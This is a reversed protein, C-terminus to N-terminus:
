VSIVRDPSKFSSKRMITKLVVEFGNQPSYNIVVPLNLRTQLDKIIAEANKVKKIKEGEDKDIKKFITKLEDISICPSNRSDGMREGFHKTFRIDIDHKQLLMDAFREIQKLTSDPIVDCVEEFVSENKQFILAIAQKVKRPDKIQQQIFKTVVTRNGDNIADIIHVNKPDELLRGLIDDLSSSENISEENKSSHLDKIKQMAKKVLDSQGAKKAGTYVIAAQIGLKWPFSVASSLVKGTALGVILQTLAKAGSSSSVLDSIAYDGVTANIMSTIDFDDNFDGSFSMNNWQYLLAGAVLPGAMKKVVPHKDLFEDVKQTGAKLKKLGGAKEIEQFSQSLATNIVGVTKSVADGAKKLSYGVKGLASKVDKQKFANAVEEKSAGLDAAISIAEHKLRRFVNKVSAKSQDVNKGDRESDLPVFTQDKVIGIQNGDKIVKGFVIQAGDPLGKTAEFLCYDFDDIANEVISEINDDFLHDIVTEWIDDIIKQEELTIPIDLEFLSEFLLDLDKEELNEDFFKQKSSLYAAIAMERREKETKGKFQPADSNKFDNIWVSIPDSISLSENLKSYQEPRNKKLWSLYITTLRRSDVGRTVKAAQTSWFYIGHRRKVDSDILTILQELAVKYEKAFLLSKLFQPTGLLPNLEEDLFPEQRIDKFAKM